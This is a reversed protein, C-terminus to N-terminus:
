LRLAENLIKEINDFDWYPIRLLPINNDKCFTTKIKDRVKTKSFELHNNFKDEYHLIGDYEVLM